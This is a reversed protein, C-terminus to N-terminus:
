ELKAPPRPALRRALPRLLHPLLYIPFQALAFYLWVLDSMGTSAAGIMLGLNRHGAGLGLVFARSRGAAAFVLMTLAVTTLSLTFALALLGLVLWPDSILRAAVGDMLAVAFIFMILVSLGDIREGQREVWLNGAILRVGGAVVFTGALFLFLKIGLDLPSLTLVQGAYLDVFIPASLPTAATSLVLLALGLAAELGLLAAFAPLGTVPPAASQLVMALLLDPMYRHLGVATFLAGLLLPIALMTWGVAALVLAPRALLHRLERPNVRLFALTLLCFIAETVYPKFTAALPPVAVGCFLSIAVARTGQRGLWALAAAPLATVSM